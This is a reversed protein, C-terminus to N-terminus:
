KVFGFKKGLFPVRENCLVLYKGWFFFHKKAVLFSTSDYEWIGPFRMLGQIKLKESGARLKAGDASALPPQAGAM